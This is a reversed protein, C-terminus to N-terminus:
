RTRGKKSVVWAEVSLTAKLLRAASDQQDGRRVQVRSVAAVESANELDAVVASLNEPTADFQVERVQRDIRETEGYADKLPGSGMPQVRTTIEYRISHKKMVEAIRQNLALSRAEPDGPLEVAGFKRVGLALESSGEGIPNRTLATLAGLRDDARAKTSNVRDLLPEIVIFYALLVGGASLGWRAARPLSRIRDFIANM